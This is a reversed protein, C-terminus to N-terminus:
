IVKGSLLEAAAEGARQMTEPLYQGYRKTMAASKHTLLDGIMDLTFRGSNALTVAFHHRLGHFIRFEKPLEAAKKIGDVASCETRQTSSKGPFLFPSGPFKKDRWAIQQEIIERAVPNMPISVTKKGKPSRLRILNFQFDLDQDELKFIESKRMATFFALKLMRCAEQNPWDQMVAFFREVEADNLYEVRENDRHPMEIVFPLAPCLNTKTGFNIIRRVFEFANWITAEAKDNMTQRLEEFDLLSLEPIRKKAFLPAIHKEYRNKDTKLGKLGDGKSAFYIEAIEGLTRNRKQQDLKRQASSVVPAGLQIEQIRKSRYQQAVQPTMGQSKWGVKEWIKRSAVKFSVVYCQDPKGEHLKTTSEYYYVGEWKNASVRIYKTAM